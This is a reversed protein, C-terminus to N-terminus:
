KAPDILAFSDVFKKVNPSDVQTAAFMALVAYGYHKGWYMNGVFTLKQDSITCDMRYHRGIFAAIAPAAPTESAVTCNVEKLVGDRYAKYTSEDVVEDETSKTYVVTYGVTDLVAQITHSADVGEGNKVDQPEAPMLVSFNGGPNKYERWNASQAAVSTAVALIFTLRLLSNRM